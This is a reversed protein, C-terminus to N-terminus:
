KKGKAIMQQQKTGFYYGLILSVISSLEAPVSGASLFSYCMTGVIMLTILGQVISSDKWLEILREKLM